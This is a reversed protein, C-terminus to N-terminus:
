QMTASEVDSMRRCFMEFVKPGRPKPLFILRDDTAEIFGEPSKTKPNAAIKRQQIIRLNSEILFPSALRELFTRVFKSVASDTIQFQHFSQNPHFNPRFRRMWVNELQFRNFTERGFLPILFLYENSSFIDKLRIELSSTTVWSNLCARKAVFRGHRRLGLM